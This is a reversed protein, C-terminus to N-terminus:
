RGQPGAAPEQRALGLMECARWSPATWPGSQILKYLLRRQAPGPPSEGAKAQYQELAAAAADQEQKRILRYPEDVWALADRFAAAGPLEHGAQEDEFLRMPVGDRSFIEAAQQIELANFDNRGTMAAIRRSRLLRFREAGPRQFGAPWMKGMGTPVNEYCSLGGMPVAGSFYDPWCSVVQSALRAGGSFGAIYVRRPDIHFRRSATALMDFVLQLRTPAYRLNGCDAAGICVIGLEDLAPVFLDPPRGDAGANVWILLGAPSSPDYGRPLRVHLREDELVRPSGELTATRGNLLRAGLTKGDMTFWGPTYPKDLDFVRERPEPVAAAEFPGRYQFRAALIEAIEDRRLEARRPDDSLEVAVFSDGKRYIAVPKSERGGSLHVTCLREADAADGIMPSSPLTARLRDLDKGRLDGLVGRLAMAMPPEEPDFEPLGEGITVVARTARGAPLDWISRGQALARAPFLLLTCMIWATLRPAHPFM